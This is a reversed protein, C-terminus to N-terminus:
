LIEEPLYPLCNRFQHTFRKMAFTGVDKVKEPPVPLLDLLSITNPVVSRKYRSLVLATSKYTPTIDGITRFLKIDIGSRITEDRYMPSHAYCKVVYHSNNAITIAATAGDSFGIITTPETIHKAFLIASRKTWNFRDVCTVTKNFYRQLSHQFGNLAIYKM